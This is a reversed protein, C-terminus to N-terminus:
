RAGALQPKAAATKRADHEKKVGSTGLRAAWDGFREGQTRTQAFAQFLPELFADLDKLKVRDAYLQALQTQALNGGLYVQYSNPGDGVFGLEAMYPRACGNPCGTMRVILTDDTPSLSAKTMAARIRVNIDPLAREAETTALGCLPLAPCAMSTVEMSDWEHNEKIGGAALMAMVNDKWAPEIDRLILNQNATITVPIGYKEIVARLAKKAEGQM